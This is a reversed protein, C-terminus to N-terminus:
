RCGLLRWATGLHLKVKVEYWHAPRQFLLLSVYRKGKSSLYSIMPMTQQSLVPTPLRFSLLFISQHCDQELVHNGLVISKRCILSIVNVVFPRSSIWIGEKFDCNCNAYRKLLQCYTVSSHLHSERRTVRFAFRLFVLFFFKKPSEVALSTNCLLYGIM